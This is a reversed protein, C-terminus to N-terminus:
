LRLKITDIHALKTITCKCTGVDTQMGGKGWIAWTTEGHRGWRTHYLLIRREAFTKVILAWAVKDLYSLHYHVMSVREVFSFVEPDELREGHSICTPRSQKHLAFFLPEWWAGGGRGLWISGTFYYLFRPSKFFYENLSQLYNMAIEIVHGCEDPLTKITITGRLLWAMHHVFQASLPLLVLNPM